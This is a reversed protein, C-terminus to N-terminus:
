VKSHQEDKKDTNARKLGTEKRKSREETMWGGNETRHDAESAICCALYDLQKFSPTVITFDM